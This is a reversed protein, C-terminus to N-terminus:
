APAEFPVEDLERIAVLEEPLHFGEPVSGQEVAQRWAEVQTRGEGRCVFQLAYGHNTWGTSRDSDPLWFNWRFSV